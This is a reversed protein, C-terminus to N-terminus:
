IILWPIEEERCGELQTKKKRQKQAARRIKSPLSRKKQSALSSYKFRGLLKSEGCM